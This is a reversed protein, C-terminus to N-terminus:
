QTTDGLRHADVCHRTDYMRATNVTGPVIYASYKCYALRWTGPALPGSLGSSSSPPISRARRSTMQARDATNKGGTMRGNKGTVQARGRGNDYPVRKEKEKEKGTKGEKKGERTAGYLM